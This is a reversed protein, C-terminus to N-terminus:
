LILLSNMSERRYFKRLREKKPRPLAKVIRTKLKRAKRSIMGKEQNDRIGKILM